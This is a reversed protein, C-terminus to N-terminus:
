KKKKLLEEQGMKVMNRTMHGGVTGATFINEVPDLNNFGDGLGIENAIELKMEELAKAANPNLPGKRAMLIVGYNNQKM